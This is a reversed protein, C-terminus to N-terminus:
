AVVADRLEMRAGLAADHHVGFRRVGKRRAVSPDRGGCGGGPFSEGHAGDDRFSADRLGVARHGSRRVCPIVRVGGLMRFEGIRRLCVVTRRSRRGRARALMAM